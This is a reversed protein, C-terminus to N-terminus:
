GKEGRHRRLAALANAHVIAGYPGEIEVYPLVAELARAMEERVNDPSPLPGNQISTLSATAQHSEIHIAERDPPGADSAATQALAFDIMAKFRRRMKERSVTLASGQFNLHAATASRGADIMAETPNLVLAQWGSVREQRGPSSSSVLKFNDAYYAAAVLWQDDHNKPNRAIMDGEKPSGAEKDAAALSVRSMDDGPQWPRLEAIQKRRYRKFDPSSSAAEASQAQAASKPPSSHTM